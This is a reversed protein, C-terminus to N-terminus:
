IRFFKGLIEWKAISFSDFGISFYKRIIQELTFLIVYSNPFRSGLSLSRIFLYGTYFSIDWSMFCTLNLFSASDATASFSSRLFSRLWIYRAPITWIGGSDFSRIWDSAPINVMHYLRYPFNGLGNHWFQGFNNKGKSNPMRPWYRVLFPDNQCLNQRRTFPNMKANEAYEYM